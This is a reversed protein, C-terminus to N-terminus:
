LDATKLSRASVVLKGIEATADIWLQSANKEFWLGLRVFDGGM